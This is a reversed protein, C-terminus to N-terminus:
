FFLGKMIKFVIKNIMIFIFFFLTIIFSYIKKKRINNKSKESKVNKSNNNKVNSNFYKKNMDDVEEEKSIILNGQKM